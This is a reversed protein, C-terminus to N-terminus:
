LPTQNRQSKLKIYHAHDYLHQVPFDTQLHNSISCTHYHWFFHSAQYDQEKKCSRETSIFVSFRLYSAKLNLSTNTSNLPAQQSFHLSIYSTCNPATFHLSTCHLAPLSICTQVPQCLSGFCTSRKMPQIWINSKVECAETKLYM